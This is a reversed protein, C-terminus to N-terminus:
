AGPGKKEVLLWCLEGDAGEGSRLCLSLRTSRDRPPWDKLWWSAQHLPARCPAVGCDVRVSGSPAASGLGCDVRTGREGSAGAAELCWAAASAACEGPADVGALSVVLVRAHRGLLLLDLAHRLAQIGVEPGGVLTAQYDPLGFLIGLVSAVSSPLSFLFDSPGVAAAAGSRRDRLSKAFRLAPGDISHESAVVLAGSAGAGSGPRWWGAEELALAAAAAAPEAESPVERRPNWRGPFAAPDLPPRPPMGTIPPLALGVGVIM